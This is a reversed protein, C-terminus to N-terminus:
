RYHRHLRDYDLLFQFTISLSKPASTGYWVLGAAWCPPVVLLYFMFISRFNM